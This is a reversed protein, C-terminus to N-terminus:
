ALNSTKLKPRTSDAIWSIWAALAICLAGLWVWRVFPHYQLTFAYQESNAGAPDTPAMTAMLDRFLGPKISSESTIQRRGDYLRRSPHLQFSRESAREKVNIQARIYQYNDKRGGEVQKLTWEYGFEDIREGTELAIQTQQHYVSNLGAGLILLVFGLHGIPLTWRSLRSISPSTSRVGGGQRLEAVIGCLLLVAVFVSFAVQWNWEKAYLWPFALAFVLAVLAGGILLKHASSLQFRAARPKKSWHFLAVCAATLGAAFSIPTILAAFYPAGVSVPRGYILEALLPYYTGLFVCFLASLLLLNNVLLLASRSGPLISGGRWQKNHYLSLVICGGLTFVFWIALLFLGRQKDLAFAHVSTLLGSRVLFLGMLCLTFCLLTLFLVWGLLQGRKRLAAISHVLAAAVLWPMLSSNEVPDWFWWGGWGLEYYAWWSGLAIGLTLFAWANRTWNILLAAVQRPAENQIACALALAWVLAIGVYGMYLVPPHIVFFPDQLLPNLYNGETAAPLLRVFPNSVFFVFSLFVALVLGAISLATTQTNPNIQIKRNNALVLMWSSLILCWLLMSGEHASWVATLKYGFPLKNGSNAAVYVISFDDMAFALVLSLFALLLFLLISWTLYVAYRRASAADKLRAPFCVLIGSLCLALALCFNGIAANM